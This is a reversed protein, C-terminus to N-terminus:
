EILLCGFMMGRFTCLDFGASAVGKPCLSTIVSSVLSTRVTGLGSTRTLSEFARGGLDRQLYSVVGPVHGEM